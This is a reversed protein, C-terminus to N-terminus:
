ILFFDIYNMLFFYSYSIKSYFSFFNNESNNPMSKTKLIISLYM